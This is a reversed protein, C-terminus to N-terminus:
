TQALSKYQVKQSAPSINFYRRLLHGLLRGDETPLLLLNIKRRFMYVQSQFVLLTLLEIPQHLIIFMLGHTVGLTVLLEVNQFVSIKIM